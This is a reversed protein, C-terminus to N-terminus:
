MGSYYRGFSQANVRAYRNDREGFFFDLVYLGDEVRKQLAREQITSDKKNEAVNDAM